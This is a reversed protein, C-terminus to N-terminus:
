VSFFLRYYVDGAGSIGQKKHSINAPPIPLKPSSLQERERKRQRERERKRERERDRKRERERERERM